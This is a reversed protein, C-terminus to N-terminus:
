DFHIGITLLRSSNIHFIVDKFRTLSLSHLNCKTFESAAGLCLTSLLSVKLDTADLNLADFPLSSMGGTILGLLQVSSELLTRPHALQLPALEGRTTSVEFMGPALGRHSSTGKLVPQLPILGRAEVVAM